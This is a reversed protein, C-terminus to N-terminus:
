SCAPPRVASLRRPPSQADGVLVAALRHLLEFAPRHALRPQRAGPRVPGTRAMGVHGRGPRHDGHGARDARRWMAALPAKWGGGLRRRRPRRFGWALIGGARSAALLFTAVLMILEHEIMHLTFSREGGRATAFGAGLDAGGLGRPVARSLAREVSLAPCPACPRGSLSAAPHWPVSVWPDFTWGPAFAAEGHAGHAAAVASRCRRVCM